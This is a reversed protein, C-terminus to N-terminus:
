ENLARLRLGVFYSGNSRIRQFGLRQWDRAVKIKSKPHSGSEKAWSSYASYLERASVRAEPEIVCEEAIFAAEIDNEQKYDTRANEVQESVTFTGARRLRRLGVLAWVFIGALEKHLKATLHPDRRNPPVVRNMPIIIVRNFIADSRDVVRPLDNMAGWVKCVPVFRFPKGFIQRAMIVDQSVLRKYHNDALVSNAKPETFTVVRKGAIDALQYANNSMEDLDITVHSDGVLAQLVNILVSKGTGSEGLLWFSVRYDTNTTLSYGIAERMLEILSWDTDSTGPILFTERLFQMWNKCEADPDFEFPLQSTMYADPDHPELIGTDLNYLGNELNILNDDHDILDEDVHLYAAMYDLVLNARRTSVRVDYPRLTKLMELMEITMNKCANWVGDEYGHWMGYMHRYSGDWRDIVFDGIQGDDPKHPVLRQEQKEPQQEQDTM